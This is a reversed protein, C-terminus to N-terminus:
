VLRGYRNIGVERVPEAYGQAPPLPSAVPLGTEEDEEDDLLAQRVSQLELTASADKALSGDGMTVRRAYGHPPQQQQEQQQHRGQKKLARQIPSLQGLRLCALYLLLGVLLVAAVVCIGILHAKAARTITAPSATPQTPRPNTIHPPQM